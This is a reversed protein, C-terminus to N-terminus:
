CVNVLIISSHDFWRGAWGEGLNGARGREGIRASRCTASPYGLGRQGVDPSVGEPTDRPEVGRHTEIGTPEPARTSYTYLVQGAVCRRQSETVAEPEHSLCIHTKTSQVQDQVGPAPDSLTVTLYDVSTQVEDADCNVRVGMGGQRRTPAPVPLRGWWSMFCARSM